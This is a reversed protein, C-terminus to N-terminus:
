ACSGARPRPYRRRLSRSWAPPGLVRGSLDACPVSVSDSFPAKRLDNPHPCLSVGAVQGILLPGQDLGQDRHVGAAPGARGRHAVHEVGDEVDHPGAALPAVQGLVERGLAGDPAVEVLPPVVAGQLLDVVRQPLLDAALLLALRGGAGAADVALRDGGAFAALLAPGVHVLLDLAALPVDGHI